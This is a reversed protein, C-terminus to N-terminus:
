KGTEGQEVAATLTTVATCSQPWGQPLAKLMPICSVETFVCRQLCVGSYVFVATFLCRQLCIGYVRNGAGQTYMSRGRTAICFAM